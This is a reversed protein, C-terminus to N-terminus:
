HKSRFYRYVLANLYEDITINKDDDMDFNKILADISRDSLNIGKESWDQKLEEPTIYGNGDKDISNFMRTYEDMLSDLKNSKHVYDIFVDETIGNDASKKYVEQAKDAEIGYKELIKIFEDLDLVRNGDTDAKAFEERLVAEYSFEFPQKSM